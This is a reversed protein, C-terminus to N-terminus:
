MIGGGGMSVVLEIVIYKMDVHTSTKDWSSKDIDELKLIM